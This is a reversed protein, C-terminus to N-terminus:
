YISSAILQSQIEKVEINLKKTIKSNNGLFKDALKVAKYTYKFAKFTNGIKQYCYAIKKYLLIKSKNNTTKLIPYLKLSLKYYEVAKYYEGNKSYLDALKNYLSYLKKTDESYMSSNISKLIQIKQEKISNDAIAYSFLLLTLILLKKLM